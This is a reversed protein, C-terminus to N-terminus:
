LVRNKFNTTILIGPSFGLQPHYSGAIDLRFYRLKIGAGTFLLSTQTNVGAKVFFQKLFNYQFGAVAAVEQGETKLLEAAVFFDKSADYGMGIKYLAPLKENETKLLTVSTPNSVQFGINLKESVHMLAAVDFYIASAGSYGPIRYNYYNFQAGIDLKSSLKRGYAFGINNEKFTSSGALQTSFGFNGFKSKVLGSINYQALEKLGFKNEGFIGIASSTANALAGQNGLFSFPDQQETSYATLGVYPFAQPQKFSQARLGVCAACIFQFLFFVRNM